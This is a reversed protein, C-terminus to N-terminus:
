GKCYVISKDKYCKKCVNKNKYFYKRHQITYCSSCLQECEDLKRLGLALVLKERLMIRTKGYQGLNSCFNSNIIEVRRNRNLSIIKKHMLFYMLSYKKINYKKAFTTLTIYEKNKYQISHM